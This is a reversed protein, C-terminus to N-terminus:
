ASLIISTNARTVRNCNVIFVTLVITGSMFSMSVMAEGLRAATM